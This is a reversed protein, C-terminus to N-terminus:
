DKLVAALEKQRLPNRLRGLAKAEIQRVRERTVNFKQGIEELTYEETTGIGFRMRIVREERSSLEGLVGAIVKNVDGRAIQEFANESDVDEIYNGLKGDDDEGVPTELSIPERTVRQMRAIKMEDMGVATSLESMSPERGHVAVHDRIARNIKKVSDIVHSPVRITRNHEAAAKFIAQRIWWTAYTSFRYGLEWKFKEVAKILGINGEQVLDMLNHQNNSAHNYKKAVSVVLRLNSRVMTNVANEKARYHKGLERVSDRLASVACGAAEALRQAQDKIEQIRAGHVTSLKRWATGREGALWDMHEAGVYRAIFTQRDVGCGVALRLLEGDLKIMQGNIDQVQRVLLDTGAATLPLDNFAAVLDERARQDGPDALYTACLAQVMILQQNFVASVPQDDDSEVDFVDAVPKSGSGIEGIWQNMTKATLPIAFLTDMIARKSTGIAKSLEVEQAHTLLPNKSVDRLYLRIPDRSDRAKSDDKTTKKETTKM